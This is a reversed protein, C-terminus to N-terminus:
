AKASWPPIPFVPKADSFEDPLIAKIERKQVQQLTAMANKNQGTTDFEIPGGPAIHDKFSTRAIADRLKGPDSTGARELADIVVLTANYAHVAHSQFIVRTYKKNYEEIVSRAFASRPNHWYNGDMLFEALRGMEKVMSPNSFAGNACGIIGGKPEVKLDNYTRIKLIGDSLYGVDVIVDGNMGKIKSIETTIDPTGIGYSVSGIIEFGYRSAFKALKSNVVAGFGSIHLVAITKLAINFKDSLQRLYKCTLEAMNSADPQTRFTYKFGRELLEDAVGVTILHPVGHREAVATTVMAVPSQYCGLLAVCGDRILKEAAAEGVKPKGESDMLAVKIKAGGMSKIGGAANKQDVALHVAQDLSTGDYAVPGTIPHISGILIEKPAAGRLVAPFAIPSAALGTVGAMKLFTRRNIEYGKRSKKKSEM